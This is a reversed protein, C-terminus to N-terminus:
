NSLFRFEYRNPFYIRWRELNNNIGNYYGFILNKKNSSSFYKDNLFINKCSYVNFKKLTNYTIGFSNWWSLEYDSFDQLEIQIKSEKKIEFENETYSILKENKPIYNFSYLGFDNAIIKLADSYSCNFKYMVISICNGKFHGSFDNFIIDGKNNKYFSCTPTKDNRLPSKFLGKKPTIGLYHEIIREQSINSYIYDKDIIPDLKFSFNQM